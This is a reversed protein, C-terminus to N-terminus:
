FKYKMKVFTIKKLFVYANFLATHLLYIFPIKRYAEVHRHLLPYLALQLDMCDVADMNKNYNVIPKPKIICDNTKLKRKGM